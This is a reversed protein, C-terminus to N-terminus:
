FSYKKIKEHFNFTEVIADDLSTWAILNLDESAKAIDPVYYNRNGVQKVNKIKIEVFFEKSKKYSEGGLHIPIRIINKFEYLM